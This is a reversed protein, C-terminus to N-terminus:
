RFCCYNVFVWMRDIGVYFVMFPFILEQKESDTKSM